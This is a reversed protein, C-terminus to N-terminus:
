KLLEKNLTFLPCRIELTKKLDKEETTTDCGLLMFFWETNLKAYKYYMNLYNDM